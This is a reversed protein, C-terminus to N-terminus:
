HRASAPKSTAADLAAALIALVGRTDLEIEDIVPLLGKAVAKTAPDTSADGWVTLMRDYGRLDARQACYATAMDPTAVAEVLGPTRRAEELTRRQAATDTAMGALVEAVRPLSAPSPATALGIREVGRGNDVVLIDTRPGRDLEARMVTDLRWPFLDRKTEALMRLDGGYGERFGPPMPNLPDAALLDVTERIRRERDTADPFCAINWALCCAHVVRRREEFAAVFLLHPLAYTAFCAATSFSRVQVHQGM